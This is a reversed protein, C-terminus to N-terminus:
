DPSGTGALASREAFQADAASSCLLAAATTLLALLPTRSVKAPALRGPGCPKSSHPPQM